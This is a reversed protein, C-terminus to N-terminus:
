TTSCIGAAGSIKADHIKTDTTMEDVYKPFMNKM